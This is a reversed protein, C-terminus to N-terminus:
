KSRDPLSALKLLQARLGPDDVSQATTRLSERVAQSLPLAAVSPSDPLAVAVKVVLTRVTLGAAGAARLLADAELRLKAKWVPANVLYVLKDRDVNALRCQEALAAPLCRRLNRDLEDLWRARAILDALGAKEAAQLPQPPTRAEAADRGPYHPHKSM